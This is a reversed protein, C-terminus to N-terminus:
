LDVGGLLRLRVSGDFSGSEADGAPRDVLDCGHQAAAAPSDLAVESRGSLEGDPTWSGSWERVGLGSRRMPGSRANTLPGGFVM